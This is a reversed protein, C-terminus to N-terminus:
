WISYEESDVQNCGPPASLFMFEKYRNISANKARKLEVAQRALKIRKQVAEAKWLLGKEKRKGKSGEREASESNGEVTSNLYEEIIRREKLWQAVNDETVISRACSRGLIKKM